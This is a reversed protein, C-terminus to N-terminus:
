RGEEAWPAEDEDAELEHCGLALPLFPDFAAM